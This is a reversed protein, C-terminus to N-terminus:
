SQLVKSVEEYVADASKSADVIRLLGEKKYFDILPSTQKKYVELRKAIVDVQDDKRQILQSGCADCVGEKKSPSFEVHFVAGCSQCVRRGSLRKVIQEDPVEFLVVSDLSRNMDTLLIKLAEAQAITRPFGDLIFGNQCDDRKVRDRVIGVTVEDPVLEGNDLYHKAEKGVPTENKIAERFMDGTSLQPWGRSQVFRKAQTGKGTGPAGLFISIM